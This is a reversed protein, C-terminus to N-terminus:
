QSPGHLSDASSPAGRLLSLLLGWPPEWICKFQSIYCLNPGYHAYGPLFTTVPISFLFLLSVSFRGEDWM